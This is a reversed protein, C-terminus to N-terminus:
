SLSLSELNFSSTPECALQILGASTTIPASTEPDSEYFAGPSSCDASGAFGITEGFDSGINWVQKAPPTTADGCTQAKILWPEASPFNEITLCTNPGVFSSQQVVIRGLFIDANPFQGGLAPCAQFDVGFSTVIGHDATVVEHHENLGFHITDNTFGSFLGSHVTSCAQSQREAITAGHVALMASLFSLARVTFM